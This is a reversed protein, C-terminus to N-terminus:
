QSDLISRSAAHVPLVQSTPSPPYGIESFRIVLQASISSVYNNVQCILSLYLSIVIKCRNILRRYRTIEERNVEFLSWLISLPMCITSGVM